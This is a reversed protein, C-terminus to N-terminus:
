QESELRDATISFVSLTEVKESWLGTEKDKTRTHLVPTVEIKKFAPPLEETVLTHENYFRGPIPKDNIKLRGTSGAGSLAFHEFPQGDVKIQYKINYRPAYDDFANPRLEEPYEWRFTWATSREASKIRNIKFMVDDHQIPNPIKVISDSVEGSKALPLEFSWNGEITEERDSLDHILISRLDVKLMFKDPAQRTFFYKVIGTKQEGRADSSDAMVIGPYNQDLSEDLVFKPEVWSDYPIGEAHSLSYSFSLRIGDYMAEHIRLTYGADAVETLVDMENEKIEPILAPDGSQEFISQWKQKVAEALAPSSLVATGGLMLVLFLSAAAIRMTTWKRPKITNREPLRLLLAEVEEKLEPPMQNQDHSLARVFRDDLENTNM